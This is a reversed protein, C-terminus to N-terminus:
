RKEYAPVCREDGIARAHHRGSEARRSWVLNPSVPSGPPSRRISADATTRMGVRDGGWATSVDDVVRSNSVGSV